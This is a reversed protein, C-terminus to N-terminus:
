IKANRSLGISMRKAASRYVIRRWVSLVMRQEDARKLSGTEGWSGKAPFAM